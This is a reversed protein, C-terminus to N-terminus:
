KAILTYNERYTYKNGKEINNVNQMNYKVPPKKKVINWKTLLCLNFKAYVLYHDSDADVGRYTRM